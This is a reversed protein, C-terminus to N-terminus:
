EPQGLSHGQVKPFIFSQYDLQDSSKLKKNINKVDKGSLKIRSFTHDQKHKQIHKNEM